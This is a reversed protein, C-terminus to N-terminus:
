IGPIDAEERNKNKLNWQRKVSEADIPKMVM